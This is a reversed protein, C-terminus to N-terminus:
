NGNGNLMKRVQKALERTPALVLVSPPRGYVQQQILPDNRLREVIPLVFALTKGSGTRARGMVDNGDLLVELTQAQIPFLTHFGKDRLMGKVTDCLRFRDISLPDMESKVTVSGSNSDDGDAETGVRALKDSKAPGVADSGSSGQRKRKEKKEGRSKDKKGSSASKKDGKKDRRKEKRSSISAAAAEGEPPSAEAADGSKTNMPPTLGPIIALSARFPPSSSPSSRPGTRTKSAFEVPPSYHLWLYRWGGLFIM